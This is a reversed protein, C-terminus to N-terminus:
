NRINGLGHVKAKMLPMLLVAGGVYQSLVKQEEPTATHNEGEIKELTRIAEVNRRFKEKAGGAGLADDTIHFNVANSKDIQAAKESEAHEQEGFHMKEIVIDYPLGNKDGPYITSETTASSETLINETEQALLREFNERSEARFIPHLLKPDRLQVERDSINEIIFETGEITM